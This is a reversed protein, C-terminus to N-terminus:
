QQQRRELERFRRELEADGAEVPSEAASHLGGLEEAAGLEAELQDLQAELRDFLPEAEDFHTEAFSSTAAGRGLDIGRGQDSRPESRPASGLPPENAAARRSANQQEAARVKAAELRSSLSAIAAGLDAIQARTTRLADVSVRSRSASRNRLRLVERASAEDGARLAALARAEAAEEERRSEDLLAELRAEDEHLLVLQAKAKQLLELHAAQPVSARQSSLESRMLLQLRDLIGM